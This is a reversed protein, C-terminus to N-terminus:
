FRRICRCQSNKQRRRATEILEDREQPVQGDYEELLM